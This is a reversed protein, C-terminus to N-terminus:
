SEAGATPSNAGMELHGAMEQCVRVIGARDLNLDALLGAREGHEVFADPFGLRRVHNVAVGADAALELVASGFGGALAGEEVTVVFPCERLARLVIERDLPKVFRANVVGVDIGERALQDRAQRCATLPTGCCLLLGDEGWHLV